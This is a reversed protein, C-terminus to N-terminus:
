TVNLTPIIRARAEEEALIFSPLKAFNLYRLIEGLMANIKSSYAMYASATSIYRVIVTVASYKSSAITFQILVLFRLFMNDLFIKHHDYIYFAPM